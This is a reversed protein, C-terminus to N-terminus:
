QGQGNRMEKSDTLEKAEDTAGLGSVDEMSNLSCLVFAAVWVHDIREAGKAYHHQKGTHITDNTRCDGSNVLNQHCNRSRREGNLQWSATIRLRVCVEFNERPPSAVADGCHRTRRPKGDEDTHGSNTSEIKLAPMSPFIATSIAVM